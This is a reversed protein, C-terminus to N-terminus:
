SIKNKQKQLNLNKNKILLHKYNLLKLIQNRSKKRHEKFFIRKANYLKYTKCLKKPRPCIDSLSKKTLIQIALTTYYPKHFFIM